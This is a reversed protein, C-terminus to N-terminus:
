VLPRNERWYIEKNLIRFKIIKKQMNVFLIFHSYM